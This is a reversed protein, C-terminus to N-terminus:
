SIVQNAKFNYKGESRTQSTNLKPLSDQSAKESDM